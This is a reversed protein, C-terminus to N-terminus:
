KVRVSNFAVLDELSQKIASNPYHKIAKLASNSYEEMKKTSYKIGGAEVILERIGLITKKNKNKRKLLEGLRRKQIRSMKSKAYILPLTIM